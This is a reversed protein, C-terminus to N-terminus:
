GNRVALAQEVPGGAGERVQPVFLEVPHEARSRSEEFRSLWGNVYVLALPAGYSGGREIFEWVPEGAMPRLWETGVKWLVVFLLLRRVPRALVALGLAIEFWGVLGILHASQVTSAGIGVEAFYGTWAEKNMFAGFGGHGVLLAATGIRLAWHVRVGTARELVGPRAEAFWARLSRGGTGSLFLFALPVAYNGGRELLEWIPEGTVPRLSATMLGWFTMHALVAPMPRFLTLVGLTIDIAGVVPMVDWALSESIGWFGFYPLWAEKGIIGFAGHGVFCAALAIRLIWHVKWAVSAPAGADIWGRLRIASEERRLGAVAAM